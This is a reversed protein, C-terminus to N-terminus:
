HLSNIFPLITIVMFMCCLQSASAYGKSLSCVHVLLMSLAKSYEIITASNRELCVCGLFLNRAIPPSAFPRPYFVRIFLKSWIIEIPSIPLWIEPLTYFFESLMMILVWQSCWVFNKIVSWGGCKYFCKFTYFPQLQAKSKISNLRESFFKVVTQFCNM